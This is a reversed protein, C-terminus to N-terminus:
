PARGTRKKENDGERGLHTDLSPIMDPFFHFQLPVYTFTLTNMHLMSSAKNADTSPM